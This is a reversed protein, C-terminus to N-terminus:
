PILGEARAMRMVRMAAHRAIEDAAHYDSEMWSLLALCARDFASM